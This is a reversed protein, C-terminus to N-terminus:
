RLISVAPDFEMIRSSGADTRIRKVVGDGPCYWTVAHHEGGVSPATRHEMIKQCGTYNVGKVTVNEIAVLSRTDIGFDVVTPSADANVRTITSANSWTMGEGMAAHRFVFGPSLTKTNVLTTTDNLYSDLSVFTNSGSTDFSFHLVQHKVVTGALTRQRTVAVTGTLGGDSSSPLFSRVEKDYNGTSNIVTFTKSIWKGAAGFGAWSHTVVGAGAPGQAGTSGQPGQPGAPGTAGQAGDLGNAGAIGQPGTAGTAGAVGQAGVPGQPGTPGPTLSINSIRTELETFNANVDNADAANGNTFAILAAAQSVGASLGFCCAAVAVSLKKLIITKM